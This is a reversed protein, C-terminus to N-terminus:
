SGLAQHSLRCASLGPIDLHGGWRLAQRRGGGPASTRFEAPESRSSRLSLIRDAGLPHRYRLDQVSCEEPNSRGLRLKGYARSPRRHLGHWTRLLGMHRRHASMAFLQLEDGNRTGGAAHPASIRLSLFRAAITSATAPEDLTGGTTTDGSAPTLRRRLGGGGLSKNSTAAMAQAACSCYRSPITPTAGHMNRSFKRRFWRVPSAPESVLLSTCVTCTSSLSAICPKLLPSPSLSSFLRDPFAQAEISLFSTCVM